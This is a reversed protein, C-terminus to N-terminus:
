QMASGLLASRLSFGRPPRGVLMRARDSRKLECAYFRTIVDESHGYFRSFVTWRTAPSVGTFLLRNLFRAFRTQRRHEQVFSIYAPSAFLGAPDRIQSAVLAAVRMAQPASYGTAPHFFGGAFGARFPGREQLVPGEGSWPMPLVGQEQRLVQAGTWGRADAESLVRARLSPVDLDSSTSFVTDELLVRTPGLPLAYFFRYGDIQEVTADMLIPRDLGHPQDLGLELGVFKQYGSRDTAEAGPGRADIV